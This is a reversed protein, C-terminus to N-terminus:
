MSTTTFSDQQHKLQDSPLYNLYIGGQTTDSTELESNKGINLNANYVQYKDLLINTSNTLENLSELFNLDSEVNVSSSIESHNSNLYAKNNEIDDDDDDDEDDILIDKELYDSLNEIESIDM